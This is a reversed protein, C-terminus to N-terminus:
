QVNPFDLLSIKRENKPSKFFNSGSLSMFNTNNKIYHSSSAFYKRVNFLELGKLLDEQKQFVSNNIGYFKTYQINDLLINPSVNRKIRKISYLKQIEENIQINIKKSLGLKESYLNNKIEM